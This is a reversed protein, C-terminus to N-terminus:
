GLTEQPGSVGLWRASAHSGSPGAGPGPVAGPLSRAPAARALFSGTSCPAWARGQGEGRAHRSRIQVHTVKTVSMNWWCVNATVLEPSVFCTAAAGFTVREGPPHGAGRKENQIFRDATQPRRTPLHRQAAATNGQSCLVLSCQSRVLIHAKRRPSSRHGDEKGLFCARLRRMRGMSRAVGEAAPGCAGVGQPCPVSEPQSQSLAVALVGTRARQCVWVPIEVFCM